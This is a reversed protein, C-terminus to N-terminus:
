LFLFLSFWLLGFGRVKCEAGGRGGGSPDVRRNPCRPSADHRRGSHYLPVESMFFAWGGPVVM